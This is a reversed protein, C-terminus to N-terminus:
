SCKITPLWYSTTKWIIFPRETGKWGDRGGDEEENEEVEEDEQEVLEEDEEEEQDHRFALLAM